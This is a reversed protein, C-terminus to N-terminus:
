PPLTRNGRDPRRGARIQLSDPTYRTSRGTDTNNHIFPPPSLHRAHTQADFWTMQPAYSAAVADRYKAPKAYFAHSQAEELSPSPVRCLWVLAGPPDNGGWLRALM